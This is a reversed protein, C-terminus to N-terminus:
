RGKGFLWGHIGTIWDERLGALEGMEDASLVHLSSIWFAAAAEAVHEVGCGAREGGPRREGRLRLDLAGDRDRLFGEGAPGVRRGHRARAHHERKLSSISFCM